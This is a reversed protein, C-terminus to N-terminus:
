TYFGDSPIEQEVEAFPPPPQSAVDFASLFNALPIRARVHAAWTREDGGLAAAAQEAARAAYGRHAYFAADARDDCAFALFAAARTAAAVEPDGCRDAAEMASFGSAWAESSTARGEIWRLALKLARSANPDLPARRSLAAATIDAAAHVALSREVEVALAMALLWEAKPCARWAAALDGAARGDDLCADLWVVCEAPLHHRFRAAADM